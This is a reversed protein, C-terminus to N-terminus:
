PRDGHRPPVRPGSGRDPDLQGNILNFCTSKGAGNPGIMALLQRKELDFSLNDVANVGGFSKALNRVQLVNKMTKKSVHRGHQVARSTM